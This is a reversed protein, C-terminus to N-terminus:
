DVKPDNYAERHIDSADSAKAARCADEYDKFPGSLFAYRGGSLLIATKAVPDFMLEFHDPKTGCM